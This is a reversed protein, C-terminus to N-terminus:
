RAESPRALDRHTKHTSKAAHEPPPATRASAIPAPERTHFIVAVFALVILAIPLIVTAVPRAERLKRELPVYDHNNAPM